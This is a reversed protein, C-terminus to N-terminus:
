RILRAPVKYKGHEDVTVRTEFGWRGKRKVGGKFFAARHPAFFIMDWGDWRVDNRKAVQRDMFNDAETHDVIMTNM